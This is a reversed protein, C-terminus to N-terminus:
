AAVRDELPRAAATAGAITLKIRNLQNVESAGPDYEIAVVNAQPYRQRIERFMGRGIVHNPLCAFPQACIVAAAGDEILEAIEGTLMWGEGAQNGISAIGAAIDRLHEVRGFPKVLGGSRRAMARRAVDRYKEALWRGFRKWKVNKAGVGLNDRTWEASYMGNVLFDLLGPLRAECGEAEIVRILDNNADPQFKVLIEGVIGIVPKRPGPVLPLERFERVMERLLRHYELHGGWTESRGHHEITERAIQDWRQYLDDAAGKVVEYPRVRLLLTQLLDGIVVGKIARHALTLSWSFGPNKEFAQTSLAIVPVQSFGAEELGRRLMGVYNTARCMGGTQTIMVATHDPDYKGQELAGVLQGIVMIAPYCADNNVHRLGTEVDEGSAHELVHVNYGASRMAASLLSFHVPSMQPAIIDWQRKKSAHRMAKTFLRRPHVYGPVSADSPTEGPLEAACSATAGSESVDKGTTDITVSPSLAAPTGADPV